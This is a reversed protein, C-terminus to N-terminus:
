RDRWWQYEPDDINALTNRQVWVARDFPDVTEMAEIQEILCAKEGVYGSHELGAVYRNVHCAEHVLLGAVRIVLAEGVRNSRFNPWSRYIRETVYIGSNGGIPIEVVGRLGQPTYRYFRPSRDLLLHLAQRVTSVFASSGTIKINGDINPVYCLDYKFLAYGHDWDKQTACERNIFCCNDVGEPISVPRQAPGPAACHNEQLAQYGRKWDEDTTCQWNLFCCNDVGEPISVSVGKARIMPVWDALWAESGRWDIKLWSGHNGLVSLTTGGAVTTVIRSQLSYSSRLNTSFTVRVANAPLSAASTTTAEAQSAIELHRQVSADCTGMHFAQYGRQWEDDSHCEWGFYCCNNVESICEGWQYADYGDAWDKDTTCTWGMYCCNNEPSPAKGDAGADIPQSTMYAKVWLERGEKSIKLFDGQQGIVYLVLGKPAIETQNSWVSAEEMLGVRGVTRVYHGQASAAYCSVILTILIAFASTKM